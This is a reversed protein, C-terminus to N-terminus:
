NIKLEAKFGKIFNQLAQQWSTDADWQTGLYVNGSDIHRVYFKFVPTDAPINKLQIQGNPYTVSVFASESKSVPYGLLEKAEGSRTYVFCLVYLFGRKRLDSEPDTNNTLQYRFPYNKFFEELEKDYNADDFKPVALIDAKLDYAFTESRQGDIIRVPLDTEPVENILLNKKKNGGLAIRYVANLADALSSSQTSWANQNNNVFDDKGNYTTISVIYGSISKQIIILNSIERKTFYESFSKAVDKGALVGDLTFYAIADIGTKVLNEHTISIEKPTLAYSHLVVSRKSLIEEPMSGSLNLRSLLTQETFIQGSGTLPLLLLLFSFIKVVPLRLNSTRIKLVDM